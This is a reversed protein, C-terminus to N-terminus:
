IIRVDSRKIKELSLIRDVVDQVEQKSNYPKTVVQYWNRTTKGSASRSAKRKVDVDINKKKLRGLLASASARKGFGALVAYHSKKEEPVSGKKGIVAPSTEKKLLEKDEQHLTGQEAITTHSSSIESSKIAPAPEKLELIRTSEEDAEGSDVAGNKEAFMQMTLLCDVQDNFSEQTAKQTFGEIVSQKGWFYGGIFILLGLVIMIAAFVSAEKKTVYIGNQDLMM